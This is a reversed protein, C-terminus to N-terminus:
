GQSRLREFYTAPMACKPARASHKPARADRRHSRPERPRRCLLRSEVPYVWKRANRIRYVYVSNTGIPESAILSSQSLAWLPNPVNQGDTTWNPTAAISHVNAKALIGAAAIGDLLYRGAFDWSPRLQPASYGYRSFYYISGNRVFALPANRGGLSAVRANAAQLDPERSDLTPDTQLAHRQFGFVVLCLAAVICTVSAALRMQGYTRSWSEASLVAWLVVCVAPLAIFRDPTRIYAIVPIQAFFGWVANGFPLNAGFSLIICVACIVLAAREWQQLLRLKLGRAIYLIAGAWLIVGGALAWGIEGSANFPPNVILAENLLLAGMSLLTGSFLVYQGTQLSTMRLAPDTFFLRSALTPLISYSVAIIAVILGLTFWLVWSRRRDRVAFAAVFYIPLTVFFFYEIAVCAGALSCLAACLPLGQAGCVKVIRLCVALALPALATTLGFEVNGQIQLVTLPLVAYLGGAVKGWPSRPRLTAYLFLMGFFAILTDVVQVAKVATVANHALMKALPLLLAYALMPNFTFQPGDDWSCWGMADKVDVISKISVDMLQTAAINVGLDYYFGFPPNRGFIYGAALVAFAVSLAVTATTRLVAAKGAM